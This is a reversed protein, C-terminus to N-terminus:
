PDGSPEISQEFKKIERILPRFHHEKDTNINYSFKNLVLLCKKSSPLLSILIELFIVNESSLARFIIIKKQFHIKM